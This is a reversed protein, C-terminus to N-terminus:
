NILMNCPKFFPLHSNKVFNGYQFFCLAYVFNLVDVGVAM